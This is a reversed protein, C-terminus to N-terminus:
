RRIINRLNTHYKTNKKSLEHVYMENKKFYNLENYMNIIDLYTLKNYHLQFLFSEIPSRDYENKSYTNYLKNTSNFSVKKNKKLVKDNTNSYRLFYYETDNGNGNVFNSFNNQFSM